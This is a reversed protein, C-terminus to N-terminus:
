VPTAPTFLHRGNKNAVVFKMGKMVGPGVVPVLSATIPDLQALWQLVEVVVGPLIDSEETVTDRATSCVSRECGCSAYVIQTNRCREAPNRLREQCYWYTHGGAVYQSSQHM